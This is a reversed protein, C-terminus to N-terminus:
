ILAPKDCVSVEPGLERLIRDKTAPDSTHSYERLLRHIEVRDVGANDAMVLVGGPYYITQGLDSFELSRATPPIMTWAGSDSTLGMPFGPIPTVGTDIFLSDQGDLPRLEFLPALEVKSDVWGNVGDDSHFCATGLSERTPSLTVYLMYDGALTGTGTLTIPSTSVNGFGVLKTPIVDGFHGPTTREMITDAEGTRGSLPAGTFEVIEDFGDMGHGLLVAPIRVRQFAVSTRLFDFGQKIPHDTPAELKLPGQGQYWPHEPDPLARRGAYALRGETAPTHTLTM